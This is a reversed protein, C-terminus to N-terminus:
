NSILVWGEYLSIIKHSWVVFLRFWIWLSWWICWTPSSWTLLGVLNRSRILGSAATGFYSRWSIRVILVDITVQLLFWWILSNAGLSFTLVIWWMTKCFKGLLIHSLWSPSFWRTSNSWFILYGLLCIMIIIMLIMVTMTIMTNERSTGSMSIIRTELHIITLDM